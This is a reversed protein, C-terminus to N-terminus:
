TCCNFCCPKYAYGIFFLLLNHIENANTKFAITTQATEKKYSTTKQQAVIQDSIMNYLLEIEDINYIDCLDYSVICACLALITADISVQNALNADKYM